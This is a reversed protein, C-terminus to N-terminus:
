RGGSGLSSRVLQYTRKMTSRLPRDLIREQGGDDGKPGHAPEHGEAAPRAPEVVRQVADLEGVLTSGQSRREPIPL